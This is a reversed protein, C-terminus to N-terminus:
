WYYDEEVAAGEEDGRPADVPLALEGVLEVVADLREAAENGAPVVATQLVHDEERALLRVDTAHDAGHQRAVDPIAGVRVGSRLRVAAQTREPLVVLEVDPGLATAGFLHELLGPDLPPLALLRWPGGSM